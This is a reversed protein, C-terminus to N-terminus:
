SNGSPSDEESPRNVLGTNNSIVTSSDTTAESTDDLGGHTALFLEADSVSSFMGPILHKM